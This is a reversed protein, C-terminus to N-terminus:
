GRLWPIEYEKFGVYKDGDQSTLTILASDSPDLATKGGHFFVAITKSVDGAQHAVHMDVGFSQLHKYFHQTGQEIAKRSDFLFACDDAFLAKIFNYDLVVGPHSKKFNFMKSVVSPCSKFNIPCVSSPWDLTDMIAQMFFLFLVPGENSGQRVGITSDIEIDPQSSSTQFKITANTHLRIVVNVFHDPLGYHRLIKFLSERSISDFAKVLDIFLGYSNLGKAKRMEVAM